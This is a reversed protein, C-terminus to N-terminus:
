SENKNDSYRKTVLRQLTLQPYWISKTKDTIQQDLLQSFQDIDEEKEFHVLVTRLPTLDEPFRVFVFEM